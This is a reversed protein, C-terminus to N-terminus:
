SSFDLSSFCNLGTPTSIVTTGTRRPHEVENYRRLQRAEKAAKDSFWFGEYSFLLIFFVTCVVLPM